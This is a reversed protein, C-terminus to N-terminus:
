MCWLDRSRMLVVAAPLRRRGSPERCFAIPKLLCADHADQTDLACTSSTIWSGKFVGQPPQTLYTESAKPSDRHPRARTHTHRSQYAATSCQKKAKMNETPQSTELNSDDEVAIDFHVFPNENCTWLVVPSKTFFFSLLVCFGIRDPANL